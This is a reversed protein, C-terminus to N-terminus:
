RRVVRRRAEAEHPHLFILERIAWFRATTGLALGVV